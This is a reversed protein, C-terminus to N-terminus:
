ISVNIFSCISYSYSVSFFLSPRFPHCSFLRSSSLINLCRCERNVFAVHVGKDSYYQPPSVTSLNQSGPDPFFNLLDKLFSGSGNKWHPDLIRIWIQMLILHIRRLPSTDFRFHYM